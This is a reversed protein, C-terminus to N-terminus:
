AVANQIKIVFSCLTTSAHADRGHTESHVNIGMCFRVPPVGTGSRNL